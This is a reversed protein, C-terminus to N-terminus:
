ENEVVKYPLIFDRNETAHYVTISQWCSDDCNVYETQPCVNYRHPMMKFQPHHKDLWHRQFVRMRRELEISMFMTHIGNNLCYDIQPQLIFKSTRGFSSMTREFNFARDMVRAVGDQKWYFDNVGAMGVPKDNEYSILFMPYNNLNDWLEDYLKHNKDLYIDRFNIYHKFAINRAEIDSAIDYVTVSSM